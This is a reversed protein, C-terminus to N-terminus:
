RDIESYQGSKEQPTSRNWRCRGTQRQGSKAAITQAAIEKGDSVTDIRLISLHISPHFYVLLPHHLSFPSHMTIHYHDWSFSFCRLLFSVFFFFLLSCPLSSSCSLTVIVPPSCFFLIFSLRCSLLFVSPSSCLFLSSAFIHLYHPYPLGHNRSNILFWKSLSLIYFNHVSRQM